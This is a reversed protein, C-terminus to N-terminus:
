YIYEYIQVLAGNIISLFSEPYVGIWVIHIIIPIFIFLETLSIDLVKKYRETNLLGFHIKNYLWISYITGVFIGISSIILCYINKKFFIGSLILFEGIFNSTAPMSMNSITFFFFLFAYIPMLQVLGSYYKIIKTNFRNYLIGILFFLGGSVLGHGVMLLISGSIAVPDFTFLGLVCMNMHSVSSYAVIRKIDIQRLTTLSTYFIALSSLLLVLPSFYITANPFIPFLFRLIGYTGLKLLVGALLVSGETPAEVHAEPLWIHFPFIPIKVAFALFFFIWFLNEREESFSSNWLLQIDTTGCHLYIAFISILMLLSGFITYFFLLYAAHIRRKRYGNIGIFIFFPILIAEFFIYFLLLDIVSFVFILLIEISLLFIMSYYNNKTNNNWSFLLCLPILFTTLYIFFLSLGDIGLFFKLDSWQVCYIHQYGFVYPNYTIWIISTLFFLFTSIYFIINKTLITM